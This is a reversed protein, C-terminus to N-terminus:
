DGEIVEAEEEIVEAEEEKPVVEEASVLSFSTFAGWPLLLRNLDKGHHLVVGKDTTRFKRVNNLVDANGDKFVVELSFFM